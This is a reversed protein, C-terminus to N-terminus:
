TVSFLNGRTKPDTRCGKQLLIRNRAKSSNFRRDGGGHEDHIGNIGKLRDLATGPEILGGEVLADFVDRSKLGPAKSPTGWSPIM